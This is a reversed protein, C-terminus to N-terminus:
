ETEIWAPSRRGLFASLGEQGEHSTRRDAIMAATYARQEGSAMSPLEQALEKAAALAEPGGQLLM